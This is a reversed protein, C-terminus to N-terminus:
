YLQVPKIQKIVLFFSRQHCAQYDAKINNFTHMHTHRYFHTHVYLCLYPHPTQPCDIEFVMTSMTTQTHCEKSTIVSQQEQRPEYQGWFSLTVCLCVYVCVHVCVYVSMRARACVCVFMATIYQHTLFAVIISHSLFVNKCMYIPLSCVCVVCLWVCEKLLTGSRDPSHSM